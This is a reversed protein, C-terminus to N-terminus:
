SEEGGDAFCERTCYQVARRYDAGYRFSSYPGLSVRCTHCRTAVEQGAERGRDLATCAAATVMWSRQGRLSEAESANVALARAAHLVAHRTSVGGRLLVGVPAPETVVRRLLATQEDTLLTLPPMHLVPQASPWGPSGAATGDLVWTFSYGYTRVCAVKDTASFSVRFPVGDFVVERESTFSTLNEFAIAPDGACVIGRREDLLWGGPGLDRRTVFSWFELHKDFLDTGDRWWAAKCGMVVRAWFLEAERRLRAEREAKVRVAAARFSQSVCAARAVAASDDTHALVLELIERPLTDM